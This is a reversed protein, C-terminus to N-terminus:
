ACSAQRLAAYPEVVADLSFGRNLGRLNPLVWIRASAFTEPQFGWAIERGGAVAGYAAKGLLALTRPAYHLVKLRLPAVAGVLEERSLEGASRTPRAM